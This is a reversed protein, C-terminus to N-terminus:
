EEIIYTKRTGNMGKLKLTLPSANVCEIEYRANGPRVRNKCRRLYDMTIYKSECIQQITALKVVPIQGQKRRSVGVAKNHERISEKEEKSLTYGDTVYTGYHKCKGDKIKSQIKLSCGEKRGRWNVCKKCDCTVPELKKMKVFQLSTGTSGKIADVNNCM